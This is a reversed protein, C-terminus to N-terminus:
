AVRSGSTETKTQVKLLVGCCLRCMKGKDYSGNNPILLNPQSHTNILVAVYLSSEGTM